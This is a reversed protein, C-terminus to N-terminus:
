WTMGKRAAVLAPEAKELAARRWEGHRKCFFGCSENFTNFLEVVSRRTCTAYECRRDLARLFAM